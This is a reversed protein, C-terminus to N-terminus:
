EIVTDPVQRKRNKNWQQCIELSTTLYWGIWQVNNDQQLKQLFDIRWEHKANTADYIISNGAELYYQM